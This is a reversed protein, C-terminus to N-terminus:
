PRWEALATTVRDIEGDTLTPFCPLSLKERRGRDAGPLPTSDQGLGPMETTLWPYHVDTAVGHRVLTAALAEREPHVVVAHHAVAGPADGLVVAGSGALAARYRGVVARRRTNADELFPLRASLVAAQLADLRSNRGHALEARFRDRWGYQRLGRAREAVAPDSTVVAGGDGLAGLNKTPYFSFAAADALTGVRREGLAAGHAQAADEVVVIERDHCWALIPGLEVPQGHLHTVIAARVEPRGSGSPRAADVTALDVLQTVPDADVPWPVLGAARAASAAFGGDNAAVLVASERPVDLALLAITLADTGNGVGVVAPAPGTPALYTAFAEEFAEVRPGLVLSGGALVEEVAARVARAEEDTLRLPDALPVGNV